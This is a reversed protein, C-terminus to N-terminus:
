HSPAWNFQLEPSKRCHRRKAWGSRTGDLQKWIILKAKTVPRRVDGLNYLCWNIFDGNQVGIEEVTFRKDVNCEHQGESSTKVPDMRSKILHWDTPGAGPSWSLPDQGAVSWIRACVTLPKTVITPRIHGLALLLRWECDNPEDQVSVSAPEKQHKSGSPTSSVARESLCFSSFCMFALVNTDHLHM